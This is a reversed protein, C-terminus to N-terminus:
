KVKTVVYEKSQQVFEFGVKKGVPLKDLLARDKVLFAMTMAPWNLSKVPEHAFTVAGKAQDVAKVVGVAEHTAKDSRSSMDMKGMDEMKMQQGHVVSTAMVGLALIALIKTVKM